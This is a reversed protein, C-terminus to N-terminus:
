NGATVTPVRVDVVAKSHPAIVNPQIGGDITGVNVTIGREVDNLAFLKQIIHSLELIASAGSQPDLGAHIEVPLQAPVGAEVPKQAVVEEVAVEDIGGEVLVGAVGDQDKM